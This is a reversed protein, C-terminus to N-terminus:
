QGAGSKDTKDTLLKPTSPKPPELVAKPREVKEYLANLPMDVVGELMRTDGPNRLGVMLRGHEAALSLQQLQQIAASVTIVLESRDPAQEHSGQPGLVDAGMDLGVALVLLNQAVLVSVRDKENGRAINAVVDVRDGPRILAAHRGDSLSRISVARMGPQVLGSLNRRDETTVALDTWMLTNQAKVPTEVKIGIVRQLDSERVARPEVFAVPVSRISLMDATILTGPPLAKAASVVRVPSGGSTEVELKQLYLTLLIATIAGTVLAFLVARLKV